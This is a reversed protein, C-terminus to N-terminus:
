KRLHIRRETGRASKSPAGDTLDEKVRVKIKTVAEEVMHKKLRKRRKRGGEEDVEVSGLFQLRFVTGAAATGLPPLPCPGAGGGGVTPPASPPPPPQPQLTLERNVEVEEEDEDNSDDEDDDDDEDEEDLEDDSPTTTPAPPGRCGAAHFSRPPAQTCATTNLRHSGAAEGLLRRM